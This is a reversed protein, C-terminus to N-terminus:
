NKIIKKLKEAEELELPAGIDGKVCCGGKCSIIECTFKREIVDNSVLTKDIIIM